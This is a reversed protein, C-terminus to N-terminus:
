VTGEVIKIEEETLGYLEYVLRDIRDDTTAIHRQLMDRSRPDRAAALRQHLDLMQQVLDVLRDHAAYDNKTSDFIPVNAIYQRNYAYYGGSFQTSSQKILWDILKSNLLGLLYFYSLYIYEEKLLVGYGGGGGGGSGVFFYEEDLDLSFSSRNAISPTLLKVQNMENLNQSRGFAYWKNHRWKGNERNELIKKNINLYNWTNPFEDKLESPTLLIANGNFIKYPFLIYKSIETIYYRKLNVSGKCLPHMLSSELSFAEGIASLYKHQEIGELIFVSDAGTILGQFIKDSVDILKLSIKMLKKFLSSGPGVVFNWENSSIEDTHIICYPQEKKKKWSEINRVKTFSFIDIKGSQLFLICTYTTANAFIQQDGFHIIKKLCRNSSLLNRLMEGYQANFFKHPLIFGLLGNQNLLNLGKEVFVVYIDYNGKSASKYNKKYFEVERPAWEKMAQIRIYPPNGIVADFGGGAFVEVFEEQWDFANVRLLEEEDFLTSQQDEYYDPGILSNGCKINHSLNPLAREHWLGLQRNLTESNEHELVKLLLSLKTVEVANADIDVGYINNLLIRKKEATTLYWQGQAGQFIAQPDSKRSHRGTAPSSTPVSGTTKYEAIYQQLHWEMLYQFAGLLFSGSGCAPDLFRLESVQKPSKEKLLEGVTHEVIYDVIYQPTYYVGGAKRVDPKEDIRARHGGTLSIRKGLFQEYANGLVEVPFESFEYPCPYYLNKIIEKLVKDDLDLIPTITDPYEGDKESFHFLGSNYREDACYYIEVLRRYCNVGNCLAQLTGYIEIGRDEAMRLFILRDLTMQVAFNLERESLDPNRLAINRALEVRWEDLSNLFDRDLEAGPRKSQKDEIFRNFDGRLVAEKSFAAEIEDWKTVYETYTYYLLRGVHAKETIAPKLRTDYLSLEEFDSLMSVPLKASYAYRRLQFAPEPDHKLDRSPKKAELFFIRRGGIRFSYDPAKTSGGVKIDDEHIVDRFSLAYGARNNVDWGLAEWFPNIFEVRILTENYKPNKYEQLNRHFKEVLQRITDPASM